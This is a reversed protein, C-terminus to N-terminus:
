GMLMGLPCAPAWLFPLPWSPLLTNSSASPASYHANAGIHDAVTVPAGRMIGTNVVRFHTRYWNPLGRPGNRERRVAAAPHGQACLPSTSGIRVAQTIVSASEGTCQQVMQPGSTTHPPCSAAVKADEALRGTYVHDNQELSDDQMGIGKDTRVAPFTFRRYHSKALLGCSERPLLLGEQIQQPIGLACSNCLSERGIRLRLSIRANM